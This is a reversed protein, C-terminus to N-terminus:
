DDIDGTESYVSPDNKLERKLREITATIEAREPPLLSEKQTHLVKKLAKLHSVLLAKEATTPIDPQVGVGEWNTGTYPNIARGMPIFAFFNDNIRKIGGPNAGGGSVEGVIKARRLAQLDYAFEEGASFTQRSTLIYVPKDLYRRGAIDRLTYFHATSDTPRWYISNLHVPEPGFFYSALLAVMEPRGGMNQRLDIVIAYTDALFNMAAAVAEKGQEPDLFGNIRLYGINGDLREVAKLEHNSFKLLRQANRIQEETPPGTPPPPLPNYTYELNLHKDRSIAYLQPNVANRFANSSTISDYEGRALRARLDLDIRQAVEPFVYSQNLGELLKEIVLRKTAADIPRDPQPPLMQGFSAGTGIVFLACLFIAIKIARFKM